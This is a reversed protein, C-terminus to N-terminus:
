AEGPLRIEFSAGAGPESQVRIEGQHSRMIEYSVSLGLGTGEGVSKTTFFPDFLRRRTVESMGPGDDEIRVFVESGERGTTLRIAGRDGIAQVANVLLNVLVQTIQNASCFCLVEDKCEQEFTVGSPAHASAVRLARDLLARLDNVKWETSRAGGSHSFESLGRVIEITREVGELSDDIMERIEDSDILRGSDVVDRLLASSREEWEDRLSCLNSRVYAMPNNIEHAIGAALQGVAEMKQAQRVRDQLAAREAVRGLQVGIHSFVDVLHDADPLEEASVFELVAPIEGSVFIPVALASRFGMESAMAARGDLVPNDVNIVYEPARNAVARGSIGEGPQCVRKETIQRLAEHRGPEIVYSYGGSVITGDENVKCVHGGFFGMGKCIHKVSEQMAAEFSIAENACITTQM